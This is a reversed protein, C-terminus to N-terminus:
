GAPRLLGALYGLRAIKGCGREFRGPDDDAALLALWDAPRRLVLAGSARVVAWAHGARWAGVEDLRVRAASAGEWYSRRRMWSKSLRDAPISHRVVIAPDYRVAHGAAVLRKQLM